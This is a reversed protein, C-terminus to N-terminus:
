LEGDCAASKAYMSQEERSFRTHHTIDSLYLPRKFSLSNNYAILSNLFADACLLQKIFLNCFPVFLGDTFMILYTESNSVIPADILFVLNLLLIRDSKTEKM